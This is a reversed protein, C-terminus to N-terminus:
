RSLKQALQEIAAANDNNMTSKITIVPETIEINKMEALAATIIKGALIGWSGNEIIAAQRNQYSKSKLRTLLDSMCTFIGGDYTAAALVLKSYKFAAATVESLDARSLDYIVTDTGNKKLEEYLKVAAKATNGHISAYAIVVGEYEPNYLSWTNYKDIYYGLNENLIPGHLPCITKIDLTSAKKLLAQVPIGYKGVINIYYRRAEDLWDECSSFDTSGFKGFADASFLIKETQEYEVMVEPWHVMAAMFFKLTHIGLSLTDGEAVTLTRKSIDCSFFQSFMALSKANLVVFMDPYKALAAEISGSHDPELHSIILYDPKRGNLAADVNALWEDTKKADATDMLAIKEDLIVYSNYSVGDPVKYQNEFLDIDNDYVGTYIVSDSIFPKM